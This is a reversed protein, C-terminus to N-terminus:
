EFGLDSAIEETFHRSCYQRREARDRCKHMIEYSSSIQLQKKKDRSGYQVTLGQSCTGNHSEKKIDETQSM